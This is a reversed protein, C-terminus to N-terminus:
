AITKAMNIASERYGLSSYLQRASHNFAWVNLSLVRAGKSAAQAECFEMAKRGFGRRRFAAKIEIDFVYFNEQSLSPIIGFWLYGILSEELYISFLYQFNTNLGNPLFRKVSAEALNRAQEISAVQGARCLNQAYSVLYYPLYDDFQDQTMERFQIM